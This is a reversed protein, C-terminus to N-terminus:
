LEMIVDPSCPRFDQKGKVTITFCGGREGENALGEVGIVGQDGDVQREVAL